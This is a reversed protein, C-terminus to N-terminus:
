FIGKDTLSLSCDPLGPEEALPRGGPGPISANLPVRHRTSGKREATDGTPTLLTQWVTSHSVSKVQPSHPLPLGPNAHLERSTAPLLEPKQSSCTILFPTRGELSEEAEPPSCCVRLSSVLVGGTLPAQPVMWGSLSQSLKQFSSCSQAPPGLSHPLPLKWVPSNGEQPSRRARLGDRLTHGARGSRQHHLGEDLVLCASRVWTRQRLNCVGGRASKLSGFHQSYSAGQFTWM